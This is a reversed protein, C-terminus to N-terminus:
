GPAPHGRLRLRRSGRGPLRGLVDPASGPTSCPLREVETKEPLLAACVAVAEEAGQVDGSPSSVAVLAELEREARAAIASAANAIFEDVRNQPLRAPSGGTARMM